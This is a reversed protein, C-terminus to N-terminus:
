NHAMVNFGFDDFLDIINQHDYQKDVVIIDSLNKSINTRAMAEILNVM